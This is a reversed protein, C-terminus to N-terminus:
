AKQEARSRSKHRSVLPQDGADPHSQKFGQFGKDATFLWKLTASVVHSVSSGNVYRGYARLDRALEPRLRITIQEDPQTDEPEIIPTRTNAM